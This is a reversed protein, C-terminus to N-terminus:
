VKPVLLWHQAYCSVQSREELIVIRKWKRLLADWIGVIFVNYFIALWLIKPILNCISNWFTKMSKINRKYWWVPRRKTKHKTSSGYSFYQSFLRSSFITSVMFLLYIHWQLISHEDIFGQNPQQNYGNSYMDYIKVIEKM